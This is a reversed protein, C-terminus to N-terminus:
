SASTARCWPVDVIVFRPGDLAVFMHAFIRQIAPVGQVANFPDKFRADATYLRTWSRWTPRSCVSEFLEISPRQARPDTTKVPRDVPARGRLLRRYGLHRM